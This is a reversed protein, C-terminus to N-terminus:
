GSRGVDIRRRGGRARALDGMDGLKSPGRPRRAGPTAEFEHEALRASGDRRTGAARPARPESHRRSGNRERRSRRCRRSSRSAPPQRPPMGATSRKGHWSCFRTRCASQRSRRSPSAACDCAHRSRMPSPVSSPHGPPLDRALSATGDGSLVRAAKAIVPRVDGPVLQGIADFRASAADPQGAARLTEAALLAAHTRAAETLAADAEVDLAAVFDDRDTAFSPSLARAQWHALALSPAGDRAEAALEHARDRAGSIAFMESCALLARGRAPEDDLARAEAELWAARAELADRKSASLWENALREDAWTRAPALPVPRVIPPRTTQPDGGRPTTDEPPRESPPVIDVAQPSTLEAAKGVATVENPDYRRLRPALLVVPRGATPLGGESERAASGVGGSRTEGAPGVPAPRHAASGTVDVIEAAPSSSSPEQRRLLEDPVRAIRTAEAGEEEEYAKLLGPLRGKAPSATPPRYLPRSAGAAAGPKEAPLEKAVEAVLNISEWENLAQEWDLDGLDDPKKQDTM